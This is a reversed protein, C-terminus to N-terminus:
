ISPGFISGKLFTNFFILAVHPCLYGGGPSQPIVSSTVMCVQAISASFRTLFNGRL